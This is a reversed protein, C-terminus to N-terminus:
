RKPELPLGCGRTPATTSEVLVSLVRDSWRQFLERDNISSLDGLDEAMRLWEGAVNIPPLDRDGRAITAWDLFALSRVKRFDSDSLELIPRGTKAAAIAELDTPQCKLLNCLTEVREVLGTAVVYEAAAKKHILKTPSQTPKTPSKAPSDNQLPAPKSKEPPKAIAAIANMAREREANVSARAHDPLIGNNVLLLAIECASTVAEPKGSRIANALAQQFDMWETQQRFPKLPIVKASSIPAKTTEEPNSTAGDTLALTYRAALARGGYLPDVQLRCFWKTGSSISGDPNRRDCQEEVRLLRLPIQSLDHNDFAKLNSYLTMIDRKSHTTLVVLGPYELAPIFMKLQGRQVCGAPCKEDNEKAACPIPNTAIRTVQKGTKPDTYKEEHRTCIFGDCLRTCRKAADFKSNEYRFNQKLTPYPLMMQIFRWDSFLERCQQWRQALQDYLTAGDVAIARTWEAPEFRYHDLEVGSIEVMEGPRKKSPVLRKKSGKFLRGIEELRPPQAEIFDKRLM